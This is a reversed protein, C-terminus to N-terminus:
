SAPHKKPAPRIRKQEDVVEYEPPLKATPVGVGKARFRMLNDWTVIVVERNTLDRLYLARDVIESDSDALRTHDLPDILVEFFTAPQGPSQVSGPSETRRILARDRKGPLWSEIRNGVQRARSRVQQTGRKLKDIQDVVVMPVVLYVSEDLGLATPWDLEDFFETTHVLVNTDPVLIMGLVDWHRALREAEAALETLAADQAHLEAEIQGTLWAESGDMQRLVWYHRTHLMSEVQSRQLHNGLGRSALNVWALYQALCDKPHRGMFDNTVDHAGNAQKKLEDALGSLRASSKLRIETM